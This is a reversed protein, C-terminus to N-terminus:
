AAISKGTVRSFLIAHRDRQTKTHKLHRKMRGLALNKDGGKVLSYSESWECIPCTVRGNRAEENESFILESPTSDLLGGMDGTAPELWPAAGILNPGESAGSVSTLEVGLPRRTGDRLIETKVMDSDSEVGRPLYRNGDWTHMSAHKPGGRRALEGCTGYWTLMREISDRVSDYGSWPVGNHVFKEQLEYCATIVKLIQPLVVGNPMEMERIVAPPKGLVHTLFRLEQVSYEAPEFRIKQAAM